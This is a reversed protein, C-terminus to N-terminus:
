ITASLKASNHGVTTHFAFVKYSLSIYKASSIKLCFISPVAKSRRVGQLLAYSSFFVNLSSSNLLFFCPSSSVPFELGIRIAFSTLIILNVALFAHDSFFALPTPCDNALVKFINGWLSPGKFLYANLEHIWEVMKASALVLSPIIWSLGTLVRKELPTLRWPM